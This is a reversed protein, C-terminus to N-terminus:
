QQSRIAAKERRSTRTFGGWGIIPLKQDWTKSAPFGGLKPRTKKLDSGSIFMHCLKTANRGTVESFPSRFFLFIELLIYHGAM